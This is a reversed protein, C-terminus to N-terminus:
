LGCTIQAIESSRVVPQFLVLLFERYRVPQDDAIHVDFESVPAKEIFQFFQLGEFAQAHDRRTDPGQAPLPIQIRFYHTSRCSPLHQEVVKYKPAVVQLRRIFHKRENLVCKSHFAPSGLQERLRLFIAFFGILDSWNVGWMSGAHNETSPVELNTSAELVRHEQKAFFDKNRFGGSSRPKQHAVAGM